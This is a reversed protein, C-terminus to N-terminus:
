IWSPIWMHLYWYWYPTWTGLWINLFFLSFALAAFSFAAYAALLRPRRPLETNRWIWSLAYVLAIIMFPEFAIVYFQFVTRELYLLWPLYGAAVGLLIFGSAKDRRAIFLYLLFLVAALAPLWIVPNGLATIASSCGSEVECGGIGKDLGEYFFSTPRTLFLWTLPNSQYSHPTRLGIHFNYAEVHYHWLSQISLPVWALVGTWANGAQEAWNRAYGQSTNLWGTWSLLYIVFASPVLIVFKAFAQKAFQLLDLSGNEFDLESVVVYIGVAALFYLGSWKVATAAGLSIGAALLWPRQWIAGFDRERDIVLFWFALLVFFMLIGDLLGTRGMVIALGDIAFLFGALAAWVTSETLKRVLLMVLAVAAISLLAVSFRWGFPNEPGFLWMGAAIIWKGLPPHVVFSGTDLFGSYQGAEFAANANDPWNREVGTLSLTLADKVYYTEDFVLARPYGLNWLRLVAALALIAWFYWRDFWVRLRPQYIVRTLNALM